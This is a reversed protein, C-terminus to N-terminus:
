QGAYRKFTGVARVVTIASSCSSLQELLITLKGSDTRWFLNISSLMVPKEIYSRTLKWIVTWVSLIVTVKFGSYFAPFFNICIM